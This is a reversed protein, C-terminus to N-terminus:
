VFLVPSLSVKQRINCAKAQILRMPQKSLRALANISARCEQASLALIEYNITDVWDAAEDVSIFADLQSGILVVETGVPYDKDLKVMCQDMCVRGVIPMRKGDVLVEFGQMKRIWGDAYGIPLTGIWEPKDTEYTAGYSVAEHAELQKVHVLKSHLSFAQRLAIPHEEKVTSSPYLGYM